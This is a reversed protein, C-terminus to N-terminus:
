DYMWKRARTLTTLSFFIRIANTDEPKPTELNPIEKTLFFFFLQRNETQRAVPFPLPWMQRLTAEYSLM